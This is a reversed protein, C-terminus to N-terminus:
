YDGQQMLNDFLGGLKGILKNGKNKKDHKAQEPRHKKDSTKQTIEELEEMPLTAQEPQEKSREPHVLGRCGGKEGLMILGITQAYALDKIEDPCSAALHCSLDAKRVPMETKMRLLEELGNMKSAGGCIIIGSGIKSTEVGSYNIQAWLNDVIEESRAVVIENFEKEDHLPESFFHIEGEEKNGLQKKMLETYHLATGKELKLAEAQAISLNLQKLDRSINKGGYPIVCVYRLLNDKYICMSTTGGGFDIVVAGKIKDEESLVAEAAAQIGLINRCDKLGAKTLSTELNKMYQTRAAILTYRGELLNPREGKPNLSPFGDVLYEQEFHAIMEKNEPLSKALADDFLESLIEETIPEQANLNLKENCDICQVSYPNLGVYVRDISCDQGMDQLLEQMLEDVLLGVQDVNQVVGRRIETDIARSKSSLINVKGNEDKYGLSLILNSSGPDLVAIYSQVTNM